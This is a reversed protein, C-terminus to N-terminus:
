VPGAPGFAAAVEDRREDDGLIVVEDGAQLRTGGDVNVLARDRVVLSIWADEPLEDLDRIARGDAASGAAVTVRQVGSPEDRLRVGLAWPETEITRMPLRLRNAVVPVLTGQVVVSFVVVVVVIGFAREAEAVHAALLFSALLIPVAGKLGAFLVFRTENQELKAPILCLAVLLPRIVLALGLGLVLGPVWVDTRAIVALDVTLGLVTFAVIEGLSALASHFRDIERKYPAREDGLVIGAVFVALFGSGHAVTAAGFLVLVAALTRLPYLGESPLATRTMLFLLIRAGILGIALGVAMQLLFQAGLHGFAGLGVGGAALLSTMLAIGVPDNVGSEGELITSSRGAIERKGLVSFVVAPDTPAVATAILLAVYWGIGFGFHILVGAAATTLFTGLIGVVAIPGAAEKFRARGIHQGGDFLILVLAISVVREVVHHPPADLGPVAAKALAAAALFFVPLPVKVREGFRNSVVAALGAGAVGLVM